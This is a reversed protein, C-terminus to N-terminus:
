YSKQQNDTRKFTKRKERINNCKFENDDVKETTFLESMNENSDDYETLQDIREKARKYVDDTNQPKREIVYLRLKKPLSRVLLYLEVEDDPIKNNVQSMVYSFYNEFKEEPRIKREEMEKMTGVEYKERKRENQVM